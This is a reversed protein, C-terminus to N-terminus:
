NRKGNNLWTMENLYRYKLSAWYASQNGKQFEIKSNYKKAEEICHEKDKWYGYPLCKKNKFWTCEDFYGYKRGATYAALNNKVLEKKSTYKRAESLFNEKNRWYGNPHERNKPFWDMEDIWGHEISKHYAHSANKQFESRTRYKKAEEFCKKKSWKGKSMFGISGCPQKNILNFGNEKYHKAWYSERVAGETVTLGSEIVEIKPIEINNEKAFKFVTDNERTRHQRDRTELYITRGVYVAHEKEFHYKYVTDIPDKYVNKSNLWTMEDLWDNKKAVTYAGYAKKCFETRSSYKRSEEITNSKNEWFSRKKYKM